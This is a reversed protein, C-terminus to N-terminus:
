QAMGPLAPTRHVTEEAEDETRVAWAVKTRVRPGDTGMEVEVRVAVKLAPCAKDALSAATAVREYDDLITERKAQLLGTLQRGAAEAVKEWDQRM